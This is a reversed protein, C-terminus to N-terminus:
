SRRSVEENTTLRPIQTGLLKITSGTTLNMCRGILIHAKLHHFVKNQVFAKAKNDLYIHIHTKAGTLRLESVIIGQIFEIKDPYM